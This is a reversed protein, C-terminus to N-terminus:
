NWDLQDGRCTTTEGEKRCDILRKERQLTLDVLSSNEMVSTFGSGDMGGNGTRWEVDVKCRHRAREKGLQRSVEDTGIRRFKTGKDLM